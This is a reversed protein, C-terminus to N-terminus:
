KSTAGLHRVMFTANTATTPSPGHSGLNCAVRISTSDGGFEIKIIDNAACEAIVKRTVQQCANAIAPVYVQAFSGVIEAGNQLLRTNGWGDAATGDKSITVDYYIEYLGPTVIEITDYSAGGPNPNVFPSLYNTDFLLPVWVNAASLTRTGHNTM